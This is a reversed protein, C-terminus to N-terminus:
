NKGGTRRRAFIAYVTGCVAAYLNNIQRSRRARYIYIWKCGEPSEAASRSISRSNALRRVMSIIRRNLLHVRPVVNGIPDGGVRDSELLRRLQRQAGATVGRGIQPLGVTEDIEAVTRRVVGRGGKM